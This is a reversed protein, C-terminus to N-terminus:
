DIEYNLEMIENNRLIEINLYQTKNIENYVKFADAYSTLVTNNISKIVDGRRLGLKDFASGRAVRFVKFGDIKNDKKIEKIAVDRWVKEVDNVYTNLYNRSVKIVDNKVVINEKISNKNTSMEYSINEKTKELELKYEVAAKEFIVHSRYLKTLIYGDLEEWQSLIYSKTGNSSEVSAWGSNDEKSYIAKLKYKTLSTVEEKKTEEKKEQVVQAKSSYFGSFKRFEIGIDDKKSLEVGSKPLFVFLVANIFYALLVLYVFPLFKKIILNITTSMLIGEM